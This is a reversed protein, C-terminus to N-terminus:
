ALSLDKFEEKLKNLREDLVDIRKLYSEDLKMRSDDINDLGKQRQNCKFGKLQSDM